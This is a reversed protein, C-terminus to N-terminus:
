DEHVKWQTPLGFEDVTNDYLGVMSAVSVAGTVNIPLALVALTLAIASAYWRPIKALQQVGVWSVGCVAAIGMCTSWSSPSLPEAALFVIAPMAAAGVLIQGISLVAANLEPRTLEQRRLKKGADYGWWATLMGQWVALPFCLPLALEARGSVFLLLLLVGWGAIPYLYMNMVPQPFSRIDTAYQM